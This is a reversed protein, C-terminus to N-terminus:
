FKDPTLTAQGESHQLLLGDIGVNLQMGLAEVSDAVLPRLPQVLWVEVSMPEEKLLGQPDRQACRCAAEYANHGVDYLLSATPEVTGACGVLEGDHRLKVFTSQPRRLGPCHLDFISQTPPEARMGCVINRQVHEKLTTMELEGLSAVRADALM